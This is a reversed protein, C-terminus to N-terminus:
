EDPSSAFRPDVWVGSPEQVMPRMAGESGSWPTTLPVDKHEDCQWFVPVVNGVQGGYSPRAVTGPNGCPCGKRKQDENFARWRREAVRVQRRSYGYTM